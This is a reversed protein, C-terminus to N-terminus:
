GSAQQYQIVMTFKQAVQLEGTTPRYRVPFLNVTLHTVHESKANIGSGIHFGYWAEPYLEDSTYM